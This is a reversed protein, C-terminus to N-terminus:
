TRWNLLLEDSTVAEVQLGFRELYLTVVADHTDDKSSCLGDTVVIVRYGRDVAGIVTALVCVDTEGGTIALTDVRWEALLRDLDPELWPSYVSKDVVTAPPVLRALSAILDAREAGLRELTVNEWREYYPRWMGRADEPRRPPMFRTFVTREAHAEAIREVCPLVRDMWPTHWDTDEHFLRQMDVCLHVAREGLPGHRLGGSPSM